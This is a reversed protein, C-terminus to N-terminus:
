RQSWRDLILDLGSSTAYAVPFKVFGKRETRVLFQGSHQYRRRPLNRTKPGAQGESTQKRFIDQEVLWNTLRNVNIDLMDALATMDTLGDADMVAQYKAAQPELAAVQGEALEARAREAKAVEIARVTARTQRELEALPDALEVEYRGTERIERLIAKVRQKISKAEPKTSRFILEWLGDEYIVKMEQPGGHTSVIQTGKEDEDLVRLANAADRYDFSKAVDTAVAYTRGDETMGFRWPRDDVNFIQMDTSQHPQAPVTYTSEPM